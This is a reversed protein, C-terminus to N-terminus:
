AQVKKLAHVRVAQHATRQRQEIYTIKDFAAKMAVEDERMVAAQLEAFASRHEADLTAVPRYVDTTTPEVRNALQQGSNKM